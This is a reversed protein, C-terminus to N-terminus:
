GSRIQNEALGRGLYRSGITRGQPRLPKNLRRPISCSSIAMAVRSASNASIRSVRLRAPSMSCTPHSLTSKSTAALRASTASTRSRRWRGRDRVVGRCRTSLRAPRASMLATVAPFATPRKCISKWRRNSSPRSVAISLVLRPSMSFIPAPASVAAATSASTRNLSLTHIHRISRIVNSIVPSGSRILAMSPAIIRCNVLGAVGRLWM